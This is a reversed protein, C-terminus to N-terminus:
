IQTALYCLGAKPDECLRRGPVTKSERLTNEREYTRCKPVRLAFLYPLRIKQSM